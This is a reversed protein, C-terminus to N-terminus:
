QLRRRTEVQLTWMLFAILGVAFEGAFAFRSGVKSRLPQNFHSGSDVPFARYHMCTRALSAASSMCTDSFVRISSARAGLSCDEGELADIPM